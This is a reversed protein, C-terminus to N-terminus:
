NKPLKNQVLGHVFAGLLAGIIIILTPVLSFGLLIFLPAACAGSIAWGLGFLTGGLIPRITGKKKPKPSVNNGNIDKIIGRKFLQMIVMSIVVASGIIGYMHFSQFKFMEYMRYWSVAQAKSLVIAFFVGLILFKINKM